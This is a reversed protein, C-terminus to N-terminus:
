AIGGAKEIARRKIACWLAHEAAIFKLADQLESEPADDPNSWRDMIEKAKKAVTIHLKKLNKHVPKMHHACVAEQDKDYPWDRAVTEKCFPVCCPIRATM